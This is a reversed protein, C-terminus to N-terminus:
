PCYIDNRGAAAVSSFLGSTNKNTGQKSAIGYQIGFYYLIDFV